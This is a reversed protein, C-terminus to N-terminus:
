VEQKQLPTNQAGQVQRLTKIGDEDTSKERLM